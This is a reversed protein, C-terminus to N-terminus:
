GRLTSRLALEILINLFHLLQLPLLALQQSSTRVAASIGEFNHTSRSSCQHLRGLFLLVLKVAKSVGSIYDYNPAFLFQIIGHFTVMCCVDTM